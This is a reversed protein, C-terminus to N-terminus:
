LQLLFESDVTYIISNNKNLNLIINLKYIAVRVDFESSM